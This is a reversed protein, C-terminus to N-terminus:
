RRGTRLTLRVVPIEPEADGTAEVIARKLARYTAPHKSAYRAFATRGDEASLLEARADRRRVFGVSVRCVPFERLNRYWQSNPGLASVVLLSDKSEREAVELIAERWHGAFRGRHELMMLRGGFIWGFGARFIPLPVRVARRSNLLRATLKM